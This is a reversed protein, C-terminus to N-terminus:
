SQCSSEGIPEAFWGTIASEVASEPDYWPKKEITVVLTDVGNYCYGVTARAYEIEGSNGAILIGQAILDNKRLEYQEPTLPFTLTGAM